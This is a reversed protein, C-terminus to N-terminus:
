HEVLRGGLDLCDKRLNAWLAPLVFKKPDDVFKSVGLCGRVPLSCLAGLTVFGCMTLNAILELVSLIPSDLHFQCRTLDVEGWVLSGELSQLLHSKLHSIHISHGQKSNPWSHLSCFYHLSLTHPTNLPDGLLQCGNPSFFRFGTEVLFIETWQDVWGSVRGSEFGTSGPFFGTSGIELFYRCVDKRVARVTLSTLASTASFYDLFRNFRNWTRNFRNKFSFLLNQFNQLSGLHFKQPSYYHKKLLWEHDLFTNDLIIKFSNSNLENCLKSLKNHIGRLQVVIEIVWSNYFSCQRQKWASPARWIIYFKFGSHKVNKYEYSIHKEQRYFLQTCALLLSTLIETQKTM